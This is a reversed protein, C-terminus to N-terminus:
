EPLDLSPMAAKANGTKLYTDFWQMMRLNYDYRSGSRANGHGEGPYYILRVPLEPHRVKLHRYLEMSQAPHVRPDEAGHMILIPTKARDAYYIPSIKLHKEWNDWITGREHVLRMENPIDSTGFKSINNSIGVFMVAAAFRDSYYTSMWASAYGGYSGGTVGVRNKDAIGKQILYDVGDVVDDFEAGAPDGQSSYTFATGRGTSGRYNPYFVAYGKAAAMQGPMSYATLWGNAYHSEPGGHVVTILPYKQGAVYDLPYILMGQIDYKGDRAKYSIVEQKALKTDKLWDNSFTKRMPSNNKKATNITFLESPHSPSSLILSAVGNKNLSFSSLDNTDSKYIYKKTKGDLSLTGLASSTGESSVFHIENNNMWKISEYKGKYGGDIVKPSEGDKSALLISGNTPDNLDFAAVMAITKSDPSWEIQGLKGVNNLSGLIAGNKTSVIKIQKKMYSDDVSSTPAVAVAIKNGDPSWEIEYASGGNLKLQMLANEQSLDSIYANINNFEEEFFKPSYTLSTKPKKESESSTFVIKKGDPSWSYRSINNKYGFIKKAEGGNLSIEYLSNTKDGSNKSLFTITGFQPRFAIQSVSSSTFFPIQEQTTNNLVYLHSQSPANVEKPDQPTVLTFAVFKGDNSVVSSGVIKMKSIQEPSVQAIVNGLLFFGVVSSFVIKKM